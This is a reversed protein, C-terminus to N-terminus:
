VGRNILSRNISRNIFDGFESEDTGVVVGANIIVTTGGFGNKSAFLTDRPDTEIVDGNPRIIADGVFQRKIFSNFFNQLAGGPSIIKGLSIGRTSQGLAVGEGAPAAGIRKSFDAGDEVITPVGTRAVTAIKNEAGRFLNLFDIVKNTGAQTLDVLSAIIFATGEFGDGLVKFVLQFLPMLQELLTALQGLLPIIDTGFQTKTDQWKKNMQDLQTNIDDKIVGGLKDASEQLAEMAAKNFALQKEAATLEDASKGISAAFDEYVDGAKIIIGLNDLILRSQRGIGLTIDEIAEETTRGAARGVIAANKFLNPLAEQDLGLLLAKNANSMLKFNSITGKTALNLEDLFNNSDKALSKFSDSIPGMAIGAKVASATFAVFGAAAALGATKAITSFKSAATGAKRFEKSYKDIAKITIGVVAGGALGGGFGSFFEGVM